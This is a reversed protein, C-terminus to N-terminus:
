YLCEQMSTWLKVLLMVNFWYHPIIFNHSMVPSCLVSTGQNFSISSKWRSRECWTFLQFRFCNYVDETFCWTFGGSTESCKDCMTICLCSCHWSFLLVILWNPLIVLCGTPLWCRRPKPYVKAWLNRAVSTAISGNTTKEMDLIEMCSTILRDQVPKYMESLESRNFLYIFCVM